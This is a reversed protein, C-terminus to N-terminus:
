DPWVIRQFLRQLRQAKAPNVQAAWAVRGGLYARWHAHDARNAQAPGRQVCDHLQAKLLDFAERPLNLRQNVVMGCVAQRRAAEACRTKRHNLVFGEDIAISGVWRAIRARAARLTAPGSIVLDDAYRTYRAGLAQALGALRLDLGFAALNALAPSSPAGQPLHADRLRQTQQWTLGGQARLRQLVPEPTAVTCLATLQRAVEDGYGLTTFIAHVRRATVAGFFDQLDFKLLVAQGAHAQAHQLVSRGRVFGCAAQHAPLGALLMDLLKRQLALLYPQPVELLRWGGSRKALLQFRYHQEGLASRRQWATPKSLRWLGAQSIGLGQALAGAHPWDPRLCHELGLPAPPLTRRPQQIYHRVQPPHESLWAARYGPDQEVVRALARPTLRWWREAPWRACRAAFAECWAAPEGLCAHLRALLHAASPAGALLARALALATLRSPHAM